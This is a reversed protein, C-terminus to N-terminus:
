LPFISFYQGRDSQQRLQSLYTSRPAVTAGFVTVVQYDGMDAVWVPSPKVGGQVQGCLDGDYDLNGRRDKIKLGQDHLV